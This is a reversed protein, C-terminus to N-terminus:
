RLTSANSSVIFYCYSTPNHMRKKDTYSLNLNPDREAFFLPKLACEFDAYIIYPINQMFNFNKFETILRDANPMRCRVPDRSSCLIEHSALLEQTGFHSLCRRCIFIRGTDTTIQSHVLRALDTILCYHGNIEDDSVDQQIYLLDFHKSPVFNKSIRIPYVYYKGKADQELGYVNVSAANKEEFIKIDKFPTPHRIGSFDFLNWIDDTYKVPRQLNEVRREHLVKSMIAFAFCRNDDSQM